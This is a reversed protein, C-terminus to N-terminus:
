KEMESLEKSLQELARANEEIAGLNGELADEVAEDFKEEQRKKLEIKEKKNHVAARMKRSLAGILTGLIKDFSTQDWHPVNQSHYYVREGDYRVKAGVENIEGRKSTDRIASVEIAARGVTVTKEHVTKFGM